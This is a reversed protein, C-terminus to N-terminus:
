KRRRPALGALGAALALLSAPEPVPAYVTFHMKTGQLPDTTVITPLTFTTRQALDVWFETPGDWEAEAPVYDLVLQGTLGRPNWLVGTGAVVFETRYSTPLIVDQAWLYIGSWTRSGGAPIPAAFSAHCFGAHGPWNPINEVYQLAYRGPQDIAIPWVEGDYNRPHVGIFVGRPTGGGVGYPELTAEWDDPPYAWCQALSVLACLCILVALLSYRLASHLTLMTLTAGKANM